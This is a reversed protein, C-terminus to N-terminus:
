LQEGLVSYKVGNKIIVVRGNEMMKVAKTEVGANDIATAPGELEYTAGWVVFRRATGSKLTIETEAEVGQLELDFRCDVDELTQLNFDTVNGAIGADAQLTLEAPTITVNEAELTITGAGGNWAAAFFHLKTTKAPVKITMDGDAKSTGAKIAANGNVTVEMASTGAVVDVAEGPLVVPAPKETVTITYTTTKTVEGETYTVTITQEGILEMDPETVSTPTVKKTQDDVPEGDETVSYTAKCVGDFSFESGQKYTTTMESVEISKLTKVIEVGPNSGTTEYVVVFSKIIVQGNTATGSNAVKFQASEDNVNVATGSTVVDSGYKLIGSNKTSFTFTMTKITANTAAVTVVANNTQYLRWETGNGYVKGNNGDENVSISLVDDSYLTAEQTGNEDSPFLDNVSKSVTVEEALMSGAFLIAAFLSFFKKM